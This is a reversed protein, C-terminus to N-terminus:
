WRVVFWSSYLRRNRSVQVRMRKRKSLTWVAIPFYILVQAHFPSSSSVEVLTENGSFSTQNDFLHLLSAKTRQIEMWAFSVRGPERLIPEIIMTVPRYDFFFDNLRKNLSQHSNLKSQLHWLLTWGTRPSSSLLNDRNQSLQLAFLYYKSVKKLQARIFLWVIKRKANQCSKSQPIRRFSQAGHNFSCATISERRRLWGRSETATTTRCTSTRVRKAEWHQSSRKINVTQFRWLRTLRTFFSM